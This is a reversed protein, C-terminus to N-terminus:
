NKAKRTTKKEVAKEPVERTEAVEVANLIMLREFEERTVEVEGSLANVRTPHKLIVKM